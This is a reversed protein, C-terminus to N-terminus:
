DLNCVSGYLLPLCRDSKIFAAIRPRASMRPMWAKLKAMEATELNSALTKPYMAQVARLTALLHYDAFTPTAGFLYDAGGSSLPGQLTRLWKAFRESKAFSLGAAVDKGGKLPRYCEAWFSRARAARCSAIPSHASWAATATM